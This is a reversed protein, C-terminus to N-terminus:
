SKAKKSSATAKWAKLLKGGMGDLALKNATSRHETIFPVPNLINDDKLVEFHLHPGTSRGTSGMLALLDGAKVTNGVKTIIKNLHAYRTSFGGAHRIEVLYGYSYRYGAYVVVGDAASVIPADWSAAIDQGSHYHRQRTIPHVRWGYHSSYRTLPSIVPFHWPVGAHSEQRRVSLALGLELAAEARDAEKTMLGLHQRLQNVSMRETWSATAPGGQDDNDADSPNEPKAQPKNAIMDGLEEDGILKEGLVDFRDLRAQLTGLQQAMVAVQKSQVEKEDELAAIRDLYDAAEGGTIRALQARSSSGGFALVGSLLVVVAVVSAPWIARIRVGRM